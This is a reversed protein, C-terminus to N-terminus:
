CSQLVRIGNVVYDGFSSSFTLQKLPINYEEINFPESNWKIFIRKFSTYRRVDPIYKPGAAIENFPREDCELMRGFNPNTGKYIGQVTTVIGDANVNLRICFRM